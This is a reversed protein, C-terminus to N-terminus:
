ADISEVTRTVIQCQELSTLDGGQGAFIKQDIMTQAAADVAARDLGDKPDKFSYSVRDGAADLFSLQLTKTQTMTM